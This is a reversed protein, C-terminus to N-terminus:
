VKSMPTARIRRRRGARNLLKKIQRHLRGLAVEDCRALFRQQRDDLELMARKRLDKWQRITPNQPLKKTKVSRVIKGVTEILNRLDNVDGLEDQIREVDRYYKRRFPAPFCGAFVEMAYRLRKASIRLRHLKDFDKLNRRSARRLAKLRPRLAKRALQGLTDRENGGSHKSPDLFALVREVLRSFDANRLRVTESLEKRATRRERQLAWRGSNDSVVGPPAVSVMRAALMGQQVDLDRASGAAHRLARAIRKLRRYDRPRLVSKFINLAANLRRTAVRLQHIDEVHGLDGNVAMLYHGVTHARSELVARAAESVPTALKLNTFWKGDTM